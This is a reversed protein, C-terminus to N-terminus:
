LTLRTLACATNGSNESHKGSIRNPELSRVALEKKTTYLSTM